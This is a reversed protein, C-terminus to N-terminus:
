KEGAPKLWEALNAALRRNTEDLFRNQFLADDGFVVVKGQGMQGAVLVGFPQVADGMTLRNNRDLDVWAHAETKAIVQMNEATGRLAWTGYLSFQELGETLPHPQLDRVAFDLPNDGIVHATERLTGNTFDVELRHLLDRLIPAVHLMVALGGGNEVFATVAEIEAPALPAFAGSIVLVDVKALLGATLPAPSVEVVYGAEKFTAAFGSLDLEGENGALFRQGHGEDFVVVPQAAASATLTMLGVIILIFSRFTQLM